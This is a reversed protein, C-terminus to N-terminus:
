ISNGDLILRVSSIDYINHIYAGPLMKKCYRFVINSAAKLNKGGYQKEITDAIPRVGYKKECTQVHEEFNWPNPEFIDDEGGNACDPFVM